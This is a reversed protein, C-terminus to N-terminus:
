TGISSVRTSGTTDCREARCNEPEEPGAALPNASVPVMAISGITTLGSATSTSDSQTFEFAESAMPAVAVAAVASRAGSALLFFTGLFTVLCLGLAVCATTYRWTAPRGRMCELVGVTVLGILAGQWIFHIVAWGFASWTMSDLLTWGSM